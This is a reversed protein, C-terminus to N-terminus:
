WTHMYLPDCVINISCETETQNLSAGLKSQANLKNLADHIIGHLKIALTARSSWWFVTLFFICLEFLHVDVHVFIVFWLIRCTSAFGFIVECGFSVNNPM